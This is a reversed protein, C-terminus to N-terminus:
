EELYPAVLCRLKDSVEICVRQRKPEGGVSVTFRYEKEGAFKTRKVFPLAMGRFQVPYREIIDAPEDSYVVHGHRVDVVATPVPAGADILARAFDSLRLIAMGDSRVAEQGHRRGFDKGLQLAFKSPEPIMTAQNYKPFERRLSEFDQSTDPEVSTCLMWFRATGYTLQASGSVPVDAMAPAFRRHFEGLDYRKQYRAEMKDGIGVGRTERSRADGESSGLTRGEPPASEEELMRYYSPSSLVMHPTVLISYESKSFKVVKPPLEPLPREGYNVRFVLVLFNRDGEVVTCAELQQGSAELQRRVAEPLKV